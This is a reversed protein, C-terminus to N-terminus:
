RRTWVLTDEQGQSEFSLSLSGGELRFRRTLRRGIWDPFFAVEVDHHIRDGELTYRGAYANFGLAAKLLRSTIESEGPPAVKDLGQWYRRSAALQEGLPARDAHAFASCMTRDASYVLVGQPKEGFPLGTGGEPLRASWRQLQWAGTLAASM